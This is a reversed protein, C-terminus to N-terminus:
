LNWLELNNKFEFPQPSQIMLEIINGNKLKLHLAKNAKELDRQLQIISYNDKFDDTTNGNLELIEDILNLGYKVTNNNPIIQVIKLKQDMKLVFYGFEKDTNSASPKQRPSLANVKEASTQIILNYHDRFIRNGLVLDRNTKGFNLRPLQNLTQGGLTWHYQDKITFATDIPAVGTVSVTKLGLIKTAKARSFISANQLNIEIEDANSGFDIQAYTPIDYFTIPMYHLQHDDIVFPLKFFNETIEFPKQSVEVYNEDFNFNWNLQNIVSGGLVGHLRISETMTLAKSDFIIFPTEKIQITNIEM